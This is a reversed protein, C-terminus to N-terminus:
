RSLLTCSVFVVFTCSSSRLWCSTQVRAFQPAIWTPPMCTRVGRVMCTHRGRRAHRPSTKQSSSSLHVRQRGPFVMWIERARARRLVSSPGAANDPRQTQTCRRDSSIKEDRCCTRLASANNPDRQGGVVYVESVGDITGTTSRCRSAATM